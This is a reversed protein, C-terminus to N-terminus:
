TIKFGTVLVDDVREFNGQWKQLFELLYKRQEGHSMVSCASLLRIFNKSRIKKGRDGGFQDKYGDSFLYVWDNPQLELRQTNFSFGEPTRGGIPFKDTKYETAEGNRVVVLPNLAGAFEITKNKKDIKCFVVDMGDQAKMGSEDFKFVGCVQDNVNSLVQGPNTISKDIVVQNLINHCTMSVFAGPVGHGTCDAVAYYIIDDKEYFWYFDGSVIDRPLWLVFSDPLHKKITHDFPLIAAQLSKAYEISSTIEHNKAQIEDRQREIQTKQAEIKRNSKKTIHYSRWFLFVLGAMLIAGCVGFIIYLRQQKIDADQKDLTLKQIKNERETKETDYKIAMEAFAQERENNIISDVNRLSRHYLSLATALVENAKAVNGKEVYAKGIRELYKKLDFDNGSNMQYNIYRMAQEHYGFAKDYNKMKLYTDALRFLAQGARGKEKLLIFKEYARILNKIAENMEGTEAKIIGINIYAHATRNPNDSKEYLQLAKQFTVLAEKYKKEGYYLSGLLLQSSAVEEPPTKAPMYNLSVTLYKRALAGKTIRVYLICINHNLICIRASDKLKEAYKSTKIFCEIALLNKRQQMYANGMQGLSRMILLPNRLQVAKEYAKQAYFLAQNVDDDLYEYSIDNMLACSM